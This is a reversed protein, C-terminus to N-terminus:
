HCVSVIIDLELPYQSSQMYYHMVVVVLTFLCVTLTLKEIRRLCGIAQERSVVFDDTHSVFHIVYSFNGIREM